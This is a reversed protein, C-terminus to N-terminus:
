SLSSEVGYLHSDVTCLLQHRAICWNLPFHEFHLQRSLAGAQSMTLSIANWILCTVQCHKHASKNGNKSREQLLGIRLNVLDGVSNWFYCYSLECIVLDCVLYPFYCSHYHFFCSCQSSLKVSLLRKSDSHEGM